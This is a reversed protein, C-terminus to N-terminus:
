QHEAADHQTWAPGVGATNNDLRQPVEARIARHLTPQPRWFQWLAVTGAARGVTQVRSRGTM